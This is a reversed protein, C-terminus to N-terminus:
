EWDTARVYNGGRLEYLFEDISMCREWREGCVACDPEDCDCVFEPEDDPELLRDDM